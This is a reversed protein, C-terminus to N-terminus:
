IYGMLKPIRKNLFAHNVKFRKVYGSKSSIATGKNYADVALQWNGKYRKLQYKLLKAAYFANVKHDNLRLPTVKMKHKCYLDLWQASELKVQCIGFSLTKGDMHTLKKKTNFNSEGYCVALLLSRPIEAKDAAWVVSQIVDYHKRNFTDASATHATFILSVLLITRM